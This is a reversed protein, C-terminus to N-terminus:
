RSLKRDVRDIAEGICARLSIGLSQVLEVPKKQAVKTKKMVTGQWIIENDEAKLLKFHLKVHAFWEDGEDWEEFAKITGRLLYNVKSVQPFPAVQKFLNSSAFQEITKETVLERPATIWRHYNYFKVEFPSDRYVIRDGTYQPATKFKEIGLVIQYKADQVSVPELSYDVLYYHIDPISACTSILIIILLFPLLKKLQM